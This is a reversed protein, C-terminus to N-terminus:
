CLAMVLNMCPYQDLNIQEESMNNKLAKAHETVALLVFQKHCVSTLQIFSICCSQTNEVSVSMTFQISKSQFKNAESFLM